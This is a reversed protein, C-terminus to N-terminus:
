GSDFSNTVSDKIDEDPTIKDLDIVSEISRGSKIIEAIVQILQPIQEKGLKYGVQLWENYLPDPRQKGALDYIEEGYIQALKELSKASPNNRGSIWHNVTSSEFGLYEAYYIADRKNWPQNSSWKEYLKRMFPSKREMNWYYM